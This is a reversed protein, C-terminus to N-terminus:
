LSGTSSSTYPWTQDARISEPLDRISKTKDALHESFESLQNIMGLFTSGERVTQFSPLDAVSQLNEPDGEIGIFRM